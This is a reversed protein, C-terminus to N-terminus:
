EDDPSGIDPLGEIQVTIARDEDAFIRSKAFNVGDNAAKNALWPENADIQAMIKKLGKNMLKMSVKGVEDKWTELYMPHKRLRSLKCEYNHYEKPDDAEKLGWIALIIEPTTYGNAEMRIFRDQDVTLNEAAKRAM